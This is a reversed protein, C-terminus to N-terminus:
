TTRKQKEVITKYNKTIENYREKDNNMYLIKQGIKRLIENTMWEKQKTNAKNPLTIKMANEITNKFKAWEMEVYENQDTPSQECEEEELKDYQSRIV